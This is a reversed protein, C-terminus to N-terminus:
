MLHALAADADDRQSRMSIRQRPQGESAGTYRYDFALVAIGAAAFHQEYQALMMDHTAGLGHVLVIAPHPGPTTPLTLWAACRIGHSHFAIRETPILVPMPMEKM